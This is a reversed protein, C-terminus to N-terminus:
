RAAFKITEASVAYDLIGAAISEAIKQRHFGTKLLNEENRNSLFGVEILVAPIRVGKLVYYQGAKVGIMRIDAGSGVARCISNALTIAEARSHTYIMDWLTAKLDLSYGAFSPNDLIIAAEKATSYARNSDNVDSSVYYVEFGNLSKASNANTHISVFLDAGSNNAIDIRKALSIFTDSNRTLIVKIGGDALLRSLRRAIDLNVNKEKLGTKSIAGPDRGGHGADIVIERINIAATYKEPTILPARYLAGKTTSVTACGSLM